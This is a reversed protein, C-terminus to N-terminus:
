SPILASWHGSRAALSREIRAAETLRGAYAPADVTENLDRLAESLSALSSPLADDIIDQSPSVAGPRDLWGGDTWWHAILIDAIERARDLWPQEGTARHAEVFAALLAAQDELWFGSTSETGPGRAYGPAPDLRGELLRELVPVLASPEIGERSIDVPTTPIVEKRTPETEPEDAISSDEM